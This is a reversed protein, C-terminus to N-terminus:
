SHQSSEHMAIIWLGKGGKATKMVPDLSVRKLQNHHLFDCWVSGFVGTHFRAERNRYSRLFDEMVKDNEKKSKGNRYIVCFKYRDYRGLRLETDVITRADNALDIAKQIDRHAVERCNLM